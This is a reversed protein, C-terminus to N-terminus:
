AAGGNRSQTLGPAAKADEFVGSVKKWLNDLLQRWLPDNFGYEEELAEIQEKSLGRAGLYESDAILRIGPDELTQSAVVPPSAKEYENTLRADRNKYVFIGLILAFM